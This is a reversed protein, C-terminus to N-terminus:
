RKVTDCGACSDIVAGNAADMIVTYVNAVPRTDGPARDVDMVADVSVLWVPVSGDLVPNPSGGMLASAAGYTTAKTRVAANAPADAFQRALVEISSRTPATTGAPPTSPFRRLEAELGPLTNAVCTPPDVVGPHAYCGALAAAPVTPSSSPWPVPPSTTTVSATCSALVTVLLISWAAAKMELTYPRLIPRCRWCSSTPKAPKPQTGSGM